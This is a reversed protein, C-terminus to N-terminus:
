EKTPSDEERSFYSESEEYYKDLEIQVEKKAAEIEAGSGGSHSVYRLWGNLFQNVQYEIDNRDLNSVKKRIRLLDDISAQSNGIKGQLSSIKDEFQAIDRSLSEVEEELVAIEKKRLNKETEKKAELQNRHRKDLDVRQKAEDTLSRVGNLRECTVHYLLSTLLSVVFGCFIVIWINLDSIRYAWEGSEQGMLIKAQHIKQSIKVALLVDFILTFMLIIIPVIWKWKDQRELFHHFAIAFSLFIIPSLVVILNVDAFADFIASTNVIDNVGAYTGSDLEEQISEEHLFFAKDVASAYFVFLYSALGLLFIAAISGTILHMWSIGQRALAVSAAAEIPLELEVSTPKELEVKLGALKVRKEERKQMKESLEQESILKQKETEGIKVRLQDIESEAGNNSAVEKKNVEGDRIISQIHSPLCSASGQHNAAWYFGNEACWYPDHGNPNSMSQSREKIFPSQNPLPYAVQKGNPTNPLSRRSRMTFFNLAKAILNNKGVRAEFEAFTIKRFQNRGLNEYFVWLESDTSNAFIGFPTDTASLYSKLQDVGHGVDGHRKCEAIAALNSKRDILVVDARRNESGMQISCEKEISFKQFKPESFYRDVEEVVISEPTVKQM